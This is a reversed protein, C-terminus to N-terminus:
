WLLYIMWTLGSWLICVHMYSWVSSFNHVNKASGPVDARVCVYMKLTPPHVVLIILLKKLRSSPLVVNDVFPPGKNPTASLRREWENRTSIFDSGCHVTRGMVQRWPLGSLFNVPCCTVNRQSHHISGGPDVDLQCYIIIYCMSYPCQDGRMCTQDPPYRSSEPHQICCQFSRAFM